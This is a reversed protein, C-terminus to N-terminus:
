GEWWRNIETTTPAVDAILRLAQRMGDHVDILVDEHEVSLPGTYGVEKLTTVFRAWFEKSHGHGLTRYLWGRDEWETFPTTDLVGVAASRHTRVESDKMHVHYIADGLYRIAGIVDIQQWFLHSPDLNAGVNPGVAERLRLLDRPNYVAMGPHMELAARVGERALFEVTAAWYPIIRENWQWTLIEPYDDPWACTVWNPYKADPNDGPCGSFDVVTDLELLNALRVSDKFLTQQENRIADNPHLANGHCSISSAVLGHSELRNTLEKRTVPSALLDDLTYDMAVRRGWTSLEVVEAGAQSLSQLAEDLTSHTYCGVMAGRKM